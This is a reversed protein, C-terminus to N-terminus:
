QVGKAVGAAAANRLWCAGDGYGPEPALLEDRPAHEGKRREFRPMEGALKDHIRRCEIAATGTQRAQPKCNGPRVVPLHCIPPQHNIVQPIGNLSFTSSIVNLFVSIDTFLGDGRGRVEM